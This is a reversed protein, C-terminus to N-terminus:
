PASPKAAPPIIVYALKLPARGDSAWPVDEELVPRSAIVDRWAWPPGRGRAEWVILLGDRLVGERLIREAFIEPSTRPDPDAYLTPRDPATLAVLGAVRSDGAVIRLPADTAQRWVAAMREAIAAQPWLTRLPPRAAGSKPAILHAAAYAAPGLMVLALAAAAIRRLAIGDLKRQLPMIMVLGALDFMSMGWMANAGSALAILATLAVPAIAVILLFSRARPTLQSPTEQGALAAAAGRRPLLFAAALIALMGAVDALQAGVFLLFSPAGVTSRSAAYAFPMFHIQQLAVALPALAALFLALGPWPRWTALCSRGRADLLLWLGGAGLLMVMSFKAYLGTASVLGLLLWLAASNYTAAKWLLYAFAAWIPMEAVNHNFEPLPWSFYYCGALLLTGAAAARPGMLARGILYVFLYTAAAFLQAILYAPWGYAGTALHSAELLLGPLNPHKATLLLGERGSLYGEVVDLPPANHLLTPAATWFVIQLFAFAAVLAAPRAAGRELTAALSRMTRTTRWEALVAPAAIERSTPLPKASALFSGETM